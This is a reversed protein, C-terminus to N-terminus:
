TILLIDFLKFVILIFCLCNHVQKSDSTEHTDSNTTLKRLYEYGKRDAIKGDMCAVAISFAKYIPLKLKFIYNM